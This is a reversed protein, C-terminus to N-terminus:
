DAGIMEMEEIANDRRERIAAEKDLWAKHGTEFWKRFKDWSMFKDANPYKTLLLYGSDVTRRDHGLDRLFQQIKWLDRHDEVTLEVMVDFAWAEKTFPPKAFAFIHVDDRGRHYPSAM